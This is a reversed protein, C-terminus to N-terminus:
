KELINNIITDSLYYEGQRELAQAIIIRAKNAFPETGGEQVTRSQRFVSIFSLGINSVTYNIDFLRAEPSGNKYWEYVHHLANPNGRASVDVYSAMAEIVGAGLNKLFLAKGKQIGDLFGISYNVINTMQKEFQKTNTRAIM